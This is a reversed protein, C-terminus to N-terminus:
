SLVPERCLWVRCPAHKLVYPVVTGLSFEGFRRKYAMGMIIVDVGREVAEDVIATGVDRAQLLETEVQYDHEEAVREAHELVEEGTQNETALITDLPLTRQVTIVYIVQVTGRNKKAVDCALAVVEGDEKGGDVPVLIRHGEM